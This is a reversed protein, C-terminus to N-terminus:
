RGHANVRCAYRSELDSSLGRERIYVVGHQLAFCSACMNPLLVPDM